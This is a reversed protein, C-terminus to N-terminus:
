EYKRALIRLNNIYDSNIKVNVSVDGCVVEPEEPTSQDSQMLMYADAKETVDPSTSLPQRHSIVDAVSVTGKRSTLVEEVSGLCTPLIGLFITFCFVIAYANFVRSM